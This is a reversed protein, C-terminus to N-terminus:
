MSYPVCMTTNNSTIYKRQVYEFVFSNDIIQGPSESFRLFNIGLLFLCDTRIAFILERLVCFIALGCFYVGAFIEYWVTGSIYSHVYKSLKARDSAMKFLLCLLFNHTHLTTHVHTGLAWNLHGLVLDRVGHGFEPAPVQYFPTTM